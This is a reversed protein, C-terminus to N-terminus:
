RMYEVGYFRGSTGEAAWVVKSKTEV